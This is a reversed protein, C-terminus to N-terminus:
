SSELLAALIKVFRDNDRKTRVAVRVTRRNLGPIDSCDRILIGLRRLTHALWRAQYPRPLELLVFNAASPFQRLGPVSSLRTLFRKREKEMFRLSRAAHQRDSLAAEAARQAFANVAWPPQHTMVRRIVPEGAAMYGVRIGPLAYFKTFSRLVVMRRCETLRSLVSVADGYEAFSEDVITWLGRSEAERALTLVDMPDCPRGTPSNPNCLFVADFPRNKRMARIRAIAREVPPRYGEARRALLMTSCGGARAVARAYESFTPGIILARRLGLVRPLLDILETSGNGVAIRAPALDWHVALAQKLAWCDPDPYHSVLHRGSLFVRLAKSSPGLPNISASFDLLRGVPTGLERAATYVDGGHTASIEM